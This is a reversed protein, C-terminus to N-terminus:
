CGGWFRGSRSRAPRDRGPAALKWCDTPTAVNVLVWRPLVPGTEGPPSLLTLLTLTRSHRVGRHVAASVHATCTEVPKFKDPEVDLFGRSPRTGPQTM